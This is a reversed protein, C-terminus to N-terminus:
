KVRLRRGVKLITNTSIGNLRTLTSVRVGYRRAIASLTEGSRVRHYIAEQTKIVHDFSSSTVDYYQGKISGINFDFVETPNISLGQFRIEFHLHPGTSRGTNGGLGILEGAKVEQGVEVRFKSLHGYLTELGNKHRVVV